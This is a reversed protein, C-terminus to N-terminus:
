SDFSISWSQLALIKMSEIAVGESVIPPGPDRRGKEPNSMKLKMNWYSTLRELITQLDEAFTM